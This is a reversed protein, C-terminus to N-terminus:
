NTVSGVGDARPGERWTKSGKDILEIRRKRLSVIYKRLSRNPRILIL